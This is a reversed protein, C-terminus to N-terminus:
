SCPVPPASQGRLGLGRFGGREDVELADGHHEAALRDQLIHADLDRPALEQADDTGRAAALGRRQAGGGAEHRDRAAARDEVALGHRPRAPIDGDHELIVAAREQGPPRGGAVHGKREFGRAHRLALPRVADRREEGLHAQGVVGVFVRGLHRPAHLLAQLDGAAEGLLRLHQEHVLRESREVGHRALRQLVLHEGDDGGCPGRHEEDGVVEFLRDIEAVPHHAQQGIWPRTPAV